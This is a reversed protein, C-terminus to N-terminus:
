LLFITRTQGGERRGKKMKGIAKRGKNEGKEKRGHRLKGGKKLQSGVKVGNPATLLAQGV